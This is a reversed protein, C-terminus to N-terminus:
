GKGAPSAAKKALYAGQGLGFVTMLASDVNPISIEPAITLRSLFLFGGILYLIVALLTVFLAQSDGLDICNEDDRVLDQIRPKTVNDVKLAIVKNATVQEAPSAQSAGAGHQALFVPSNAKAEEIKSVTIAKAAGYTLASLGSLIALNPPISIKGLYTGWGNVLFMSLTAIYVVFLVFFWTVMQFKSYSYRKDGGIILKGPQWWSVLLAFALLVLAAGCMHLLVSQSGCERTVSLVSKIAKPSAVDDVEISLRDKKAAMRLMEQNSAGEVQLVEPVSKGDFRVKAQRGDNEISEVVGQTTKSLNPAAASQGWASGAFLTLACVLMTLIARM